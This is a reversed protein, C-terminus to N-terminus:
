TPWSISGTSSMSRGARSERRDGAPLAEVHRHLRLSARWQTGGRVGQLVEAADEEHPREGGLAAAPVRADIQYVLTIYNQAREERLDRRHRHGPCGGSEPAGAGLRCGDTRLPVRQGLQDPVSPRDGELEAAEGLPGSVLRLDHDSPEQGAAWPMQRWRSGAAHATWGDCPTSSSSRSGGCRSSSSVGSHCFMMARAMAAVVPVSPGAERERGSRWKLSAAGRRENWRITGYVFGQHLQVRNLISKVQM